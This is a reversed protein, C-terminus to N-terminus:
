NPFSFAFQAVVTADDTPTLTYNIVKGPNGTMVPVGDVLIRARFTGLKPTAKFNVSNGVPIIQTGSQSITGLTNATSSVVTYASQAFVADLTIDDSINSLIISNGAVTANTPAPVTAALAELDISSGTDPTFTFAQSGGTAVTVPGVPSVSGSGTVNVTVTKTFTSFFAEITSDESVETFTYETVAGVSNGNVLVDAVVAGVDATIEFTSPVNSPHWRFAPTITGNPTQIAALYFAGCDNLLIDTGTVIGNGAIAPVERNWFNYAADVQAEMWADLQAEVDPFCNGDLVIPGQQVGVLVAASEIESLNNGTIRGNGEVGIVSGAGFAGSFVNDAIYVSAPGNLVTCSWDGEGIVSPCGGNVYIGRAFGSGNLSANFTNGVINLNTTNIGEAEIAPGAHNITNGYIAVGSTGSGLLIAAYRAPAKTIEFGEVSSNSSEIRLAAGYGSGTGTLTTEGVAQLAITKASPITVNETFDGHALVTAGTSARLVAASITADIYHGGSTGDGLNTFVQDTYAYGSTFTNGSLIASLSSAGIAEVSITLIHGAGVLNSSDFTNGVVTTDAHRARLLAAPTSGSFINGSIEAGAADIAVLNTGTGGAGGPGGSVGSVGDITNNAFVVVSANGRPQIVVLQRAVNPVTFQNGTAPTAGSFSQGSITNGTISVNNLAQNYVSLLASDGDAVLVNGTISVNTHGLAGEGFYIAATELGPNGDSGYVTFGSISIDSGPNIRITNLISNAPTIITTEPGDASVLTLSKTITINENYTGAAVNITDGPSAATIAAQITAYTGPVELQAAKTSLLMGALLFATALPQRINM